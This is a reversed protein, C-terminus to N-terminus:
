TVLIICIFIKIITLFVAGSGYGDGIKMAGIRIELFIFHVSLSLVLSIITGVKRIGEVIIGAEIRLMTGLIFDSLM